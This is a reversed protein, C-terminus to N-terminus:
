FPLILIACHNFDYQQLHRLPEYRCLKFFLSLFTISFLYSFSSPVGFSIVFLQAYNQFYFILFAFMFSSFPLREIHNSPNTLIFHQAFIFFSSSHHLFSYRFKKLCLLSLDEVALM